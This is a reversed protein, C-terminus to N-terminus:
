GMRVGDVLVLTHGSNAGRLFVSTGKGPGGYSAVDIGAYRRLVDAATRAGSRQIDEATIVTTDATTHTIETQAREATVVVPALEAAHAASAAAAALLAARISRM